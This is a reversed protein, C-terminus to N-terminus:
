KGRSRGPQAQWKALSFNPITERAFFGSVLTLYEPLVGDHSWKLEINLLEAATKGIDFGFSELSPRTKKPAICAQGEIRACAGAPCVHCTGAFFAKSVPHRKELELLARDLGSRVKGIIGYATEKCKEWGRNEEIAKEDLTIKTGIIYATEFPSIYEGIDFDFPPCSWCAAYRNCAKCYEMFRVADRYGSAYDALKIEAIRHSFGYM